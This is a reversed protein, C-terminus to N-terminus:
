NCVALYISILFPILVLQVEDELDRYFQHLLLSESLKDRRLRMPEELQAFGKELVDQREKIKDGDFHNDTIYHAAEVGAMM